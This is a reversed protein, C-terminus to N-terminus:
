HAALEDDQLEPNDRWTAAISLIQPEIALFADFVQPDFTSGREAQMLRMAVAHPFAPKYCRRSILADYIDAVAMIRGCLPIHDGALGRPYGSGDWKEHHTAAIEGAVRLFNDGDIGRASHQIIERGDDAHKRMQVMEELTLRAPKLLIHDPVGVKGIDHLPASAYLLGIYADDLVDTYVGQRQLQEAIALVYHQTRKIHAGTEPHRKEAVVAMSQMAVLRTNAVQEMSRRAMRRALLYHGSCLVACVVACLLLPAAPSVFVSTADFLAWSAAVTAAAV